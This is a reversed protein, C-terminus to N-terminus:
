HLFRLNRSNVRAIMLRRDKKSIRIVIGLKHNYADEDHHINSLKFIMMKVVAMIVYPSTHLADIRGSPTVEILRMHQNLIQDRQKLHLVNPASSENTICYYPSTTNITSMMRNLQILAVRYDEDIFKFLMDPICIKYTTNMSTAIMYLLMDNLYEELHIISKFGSSTPM